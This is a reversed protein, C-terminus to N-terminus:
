ALTYLSFNSFWFSLLCLTDSSSNFTEYARVQDFIVTRLEFLDWKSAITKLKVILIKKLKKIEHIWSVSILVFCIKRWFRRSILCNTGIIANLLSYIQWLFDYILWILRMKFGWIDVKVETIKTEKHKNRWGEFWSQKNRFLNGLEPWILSSWGFRYIGDFVLLNARKFPTLRMRRGLINASICAGLFTIDNIRTGLTPQWKATWCNAEICKCLNSSCVFNHCWFLVKSDVREFSDM